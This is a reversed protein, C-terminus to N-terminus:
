APLEKGIALNPPSVLVPPNGTIVVTKVLVGNIYFKETDNTFRVILESWADLPVSTGGDYHDHDGTDTM